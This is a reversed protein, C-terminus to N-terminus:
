LMLMWCDQLDLHGFVRTVPGLGKTITDGKVDLGIMLALLAYIGRSLHDKYIRCGEDAYRRQSLAATELGM